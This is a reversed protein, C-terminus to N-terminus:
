EDRQKSTKLLIVFPQKGMMKHGVVDERRLVLILQNVFLAEKKEAYYNYM